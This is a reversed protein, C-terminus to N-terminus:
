VISPPFVLAALRALAADRDATAGDVRPPLHGALLGDFSLDRLRELSQALVQLSCDHTNLLAVAGGPFILDGAVLGTWGDLEVLYAVHDASHGPTALVSFSAEGIVFRDGDRVVRDVRCELLRDSARYMGARRAQPLAISDEDAQELRRATEASAVVELGSRERWLAAGGAHDLHAHTLLLARPERLDVGDEHAQALLRDLSRGVGADVLVAGEATEIAYVNCDDEDGGQGADPGGILAIKRTLRV